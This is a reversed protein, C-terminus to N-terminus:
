ENTWAFDIIGKPEKTKCIQELYDRIEFYILDQTDSENFVAKTYKQSLKILHNFEEETIEFISNDYTILRM